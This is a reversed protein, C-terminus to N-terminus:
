QSGNAHNLYLDWPTDAGYFVPLPEAHGCGKRTCRATVDHGIIQGHRVVPRATRVDDRTKHGLVKCRIPMM